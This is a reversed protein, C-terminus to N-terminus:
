AYIIEELLVEEAMHRLGNMHAVWAMQDKAKDPPPNKEQLRDMLIDLREGAAKDVDLLHKKLNGKMLIVNFRGSRHNRLYSERMLGFKGLPRSNDELDVGLTINPVLYDGEPIYEIDVM